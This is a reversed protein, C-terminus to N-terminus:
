LKAKWSREREREREMERVLIASIYLACIIYTSMTGCPIVGPIERLPICIFENVFYM